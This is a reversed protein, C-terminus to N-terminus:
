LEYTEGPSNVVKFRTDLGITPQLKKPIHDVYQSLIASKGVSINGLMIIKLHTRQNSKGADIMVPLFFNYVTFLQFNIPHLTPYVRAIL